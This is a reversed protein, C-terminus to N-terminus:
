IPLKRKAKFGILENWGWRIVEKGIENVFPQRPENLKEWKSWAMGYGNYRYHRFFWQGEQNVAVEIQKGYTDQGRFVNSEM